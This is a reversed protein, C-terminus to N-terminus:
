TIAAEVAAAIDLLRATDGRRGVIQLGRPLGEPGRGSPLSVVPHGTLNFLQTLSLMAARVPMEVGDVDVTAAGLPPAAIPLTPLLLADFRDLAASVAVTLAERLRLARVYDEALVYSGMELRLRIGPSYADPYRSLWDAHLSSAEPLVIHLYVHPTWHVHAVATEQLRHGAKELGDLAHETCSRAGADLRDFFYARPVGFTLQRLTEPERHMGSMVDYLLRVDALTRAMPGVHDLTTSLPMVGGTPIEGAGPKLGVTGCAASPIRISGGTDTGVAGYCMGKVLAAAAGGSSGGASRSPDEPHRVPGFATEDSTTGFAFEHLNTKGIVIAGAERLRRVVPADTGPLRPPVKSGSTTPVGAVDVLDKISVPVGHLPGAHRGAAIERDAAAADALAQERMVTIFANGETDRDIRHLCQRVVDVCTVARQKLLLALDAITRVESVSM